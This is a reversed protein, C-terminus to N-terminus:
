ERKGLVEAQPQLKTGRKRKAPAPANSSGHMVVGYLSSQHPQVADVSHAAQREQNRNTQLHRTREEAARKHKEIFGAPLLQLLHPLGLNGYFDKFTLILASSQYSLEKFHPLVEIPASYAGPGTRLDPQMRM